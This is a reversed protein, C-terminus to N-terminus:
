GRKAGRERIKRAPIGAVVTYPAVNKTVVSGAAIVAGKGIEVGDLIRCGAAIWVDDNIKIGKRTVGQTRIPVAPDDFIHNAAMIITHHAIRVDNGITIGGSGSLITYPNVSCNAGIEVFGGVKTSTIVAGWCIISNDGISIHAEKNCHFRAGDQITVKDGLRISKTKGLFVASPSIRCDKGMQPLRSQAIFYIIKRIIFILRAMLM